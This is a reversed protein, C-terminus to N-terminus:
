LWSYGAFKKALTNILEKGHYAMFKYLSFSVMRIKEYGMLTCYQFYYFHTNTLYIHTSIFWRIRILEVELSPTFRYVSRHEKIFVCMVSICVYMCVHM